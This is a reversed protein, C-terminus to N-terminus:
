NIFHRGCQSRLIRRVLPYLYIVIYSNIISPNDSAVQLVDM